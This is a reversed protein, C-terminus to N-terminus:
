APFRDQIKDRCLIERGACRSNKPFFPFSLSQFNHMLDRVGFKGPQDPFRRQGGAVTRPLEHEDILPPHLGIPQTIPKLGAIVSKQHLMLKRRRNQEEIQVRLEHIDINMRRLLLDPKRMFGHDLRHDFLGHGLGEPFAAIQHWGEAFFICFGVLIRLAGSERLRTEPKFLTHGRVIHRKLDRLSHGHIHDGLSDVPRLRELDTFPEPDDANEPLDMAGVDQRFGVFAIHDNILVRGM